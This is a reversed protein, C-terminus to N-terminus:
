KSRKLSKQYLEELLNIKDKMTVMLQPNEVTEYRVRDLVKKIVDSFNNLNSISGGEFFRLFNDVSTEIKGGSYDFQELLQASTKDARISASIVASQNVEGGESIIDESGESIYSIERSLEEVDRKKAPHSLWTFVNFNYTPTQHTATNAYFGAGVHPGGFVAVKGGSPMIEAADVVVPTGKPYIVGNGANDSDINYTDDDGYCIPIITKDASTIPKMKSNLMSASGKSIISKVESSIVKDDFLHMFLIFAVSGGAPSNTPDLVEDSNVRINSGTQELVKNLTQPYAYGGFDARGILLLGGGADVFKKIVTLESANLGAESTSYEPIILVSAGKLTNATIRETNNIVDFGRSYLDVKMSEYNGRMMNLHAEDIIAIRRIVNINFSNIAYIKDDDAIVAFLEYTKSQQPIWKFNVTNGAPITVGNAYINKPSVADEYLLLKAKAPAGTVKVTIEVPEFIIPKVPKAAISTVSAGGQIEDATQFSGAGTVVQASDKKAISEIEFNYSTKPKLGSITIKHNLAFDALLKTDSTTGGAQIFKVKTTSLHSTQWEITASYPTTGTVDPGTVLVNPTSNCSHHLENGDTWTEVTKDQDTRNIVKSYFELNKVTNAHPHKFKNDVGCSIISLDPKLKTLYDPTSSTASGHHAVKYINCPLLKEDNQTMLYAEAEKEADGSFNYVINKYQMRVVVSFNNLNEESATTRADDAKPKRIVTSDDTFLPRALSKEAISPKPKFDNTAGWEKTPHLVTADIGDGFDLKDGKWAKYVPVGKKKFQAIIDAYIQSVSPRNEYVAGFQYKPILAPLGGIHDRHAHSIILIDIKKIGNAELYPIIYNEAAFETDDGADIMIVKGSPTRIIECDGQGVELYTVKLLNSKEQANVGPATFVLLTLFCISFVLFNRTMGKFYKM